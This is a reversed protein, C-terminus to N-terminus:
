GQKRATVTMAHSREVTIHSFGVRSLARRMSGETQFSEYRGNWPFPIQRGALHFALGNAIVYPRFLLEKVNLTRAARLMERTTMSLPHLTAWLRGGPKLVRFVDALSRRLDTYPLSVRSIVVDFVGDKFPLREAQANMYRIHGYRKQGYSLSELDIDIGVLLARDPHHSAVFTQGIGCGIDLVVREHEEFRPMSYGPSAPDLACELEELHYRIRDSDV